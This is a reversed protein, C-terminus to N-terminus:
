RRGYKRFLYYVSGLTGLIILIGLWGWLMPTKVSIRFAIKSSAEPTKAEMNTVYDGPIAKKDATITAFARIDKGPELGAIKDPEFSVEWNVPTSATLTIDKLASSGMNRILLEMRKEEGATINSSVLGTPTTLEIGFSGTIVVELEMDASTASTGASVPIKYTGAEIRDPPKIEISVNETANAEVNVSTAQIYNPKFVVNWGRPANARLAYLQKEATRNKLEANFTFNSSAHGEMNPQKTTFETKFTGQESIVVVLPMTDFSGAVVNFRYSGKNVQHPIELMLSLSKKEGPLVSLQSISWGGSKLTYDWGRPVSSLSIDVNKIESSNNIVDITYEVSEGPPVSINTYPTYLSVSGVAPNAFSSLGQIGFFAALLFLLTKRHIIM